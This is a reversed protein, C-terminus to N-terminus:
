IKLEYPNLIFYNSTIGHKLVITWVGADTLTFSFVKPNIFNKNSYTALTTETISALSPKFLRIEGIPGNYTVKIKCGAVNNAFQHLSYGLAPRVITGYIIDKEVNDIKIKVEYPLINSSGTGVRLHYVDTSTATYKYARYKIGTGSLTM